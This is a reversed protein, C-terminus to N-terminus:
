ELEKGTLKNYEEESILDYEWMVYYYNNDEAAVDHVFNNYEQFGWDYGDRIQAYIKTAIFQRHEAPINIEYLSLADYLNRQVHAIRKIDGNKLVDLEQACAIINDVWSDTYACLNLSKVYALWENCNTALKQIQEQIKKDNKAM